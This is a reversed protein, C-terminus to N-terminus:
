EVPVRYNKRSYTKESKHIKHKAVFGTKDELEIERSAKRNAKIYDKQTIRLNAM